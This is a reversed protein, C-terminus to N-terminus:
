RLQGLYELLSATLILSTHADAPLLSTTSPYHHAMSTLAFYAKCAENLFAEHDRPRGAPAPPWGLERAVATGLTHQHPPVALHQELCEIVERCKQICDDPYGADYKKRAEEFLEVAKDPVLRSPSSPLTIEILRFRDYGVGPLVGGAWNMEALPIRVLGISAMWFHVVESFIGYNRNWGGEGMTSRVEGGIIQSANGTKKLGVITPVLRLYLNSNPTHRLTELHKIQEHTLSFLLRAAGDSPKAGIPSVSPLSHLMECTMSTGFQSAVDGHEGLHLSAVLRILAIQHESDTPYILIKIPILLQPNHWGGQGVIEKPELAVQGVMQNSLLIDTESVLEEKTVRGVMDRFIAGASALWSPKTVQLHLLTM